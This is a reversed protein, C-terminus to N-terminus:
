GAPAVVPEKIAAVVDDLTASVRPAPPALKWERLQDINDPDTCFAVFARPDNGFRARVDSSVREFARNAEVVKNMAEHFDVPLATCDMFAGPNRGSPLYGTVKHRAVIVNVDCEEAFSKKTRGDGFVELPLGVRDFWKRVKPM